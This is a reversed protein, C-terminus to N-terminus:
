TRVVHVSCHSHRVIRAATSGLLHDKLGPKISGVVICDANNLKAYDLIAKSSHGKIILSVVDDADGIREALLKKTQQMGEEIAEKSVFTSVSSQLPEQVHLAIIEGGDNKLRRALELANEGIGHELSLSVIIKSYM